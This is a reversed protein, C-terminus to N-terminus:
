LQKKAMERLEEISKDPFRSVLKAEEEAASELRGYQRYQEASQLASAIFRRQEEQEVIARTKADSLIEEAEQRCKQGTPTEPFRKAIAKLGKCVEFYLVPHDDARARLDQVKAYSRAAARERLAPRAAPDKQIRKLLAGALRAPDPLRSAGPIGGLLSPYTARTDQAIDFATAYEGQDYLETAQEIQAMATQHLLQLRDLAVRGPGNSGAIAYTYRLKGVAARTQGRALLNLGDNLFYEARKLDAATPQRIIPRQSSVPM